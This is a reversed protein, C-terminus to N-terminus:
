MKLNFNNLILKIACIIFIIMGITSLIQSIFFVIQSVFYAGIINFTGVTNQFIESPLLILMFSGLSLYLLKINKDNM